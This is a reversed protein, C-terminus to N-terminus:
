PFYTSKVTFAVSNQYSSSKNGNNDQIGDAAEFAIMKGLLNEPNVHLPQPHMAAFAPTSAELQYAQQTEMNLCAIVNSKDVTPHQTKNRNWSLLGLTLVLMFFSFIVKQM